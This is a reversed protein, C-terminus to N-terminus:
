GIDISYIFLPYFHPGASDVLRCYCSRVGIAKLIDPYLVSMEEESLVSVAMCDPYQKCVEGYEDKVWASFM